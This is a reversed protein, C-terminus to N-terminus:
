VTQPMPYLEAVKLPQRRIKLRYIMRLFEIAERWRRVRMSLSRWSLNRWLPFVDIEYLDLLYFLLSVDALTQNQGMVIKLRKSATWVSFMKKQTCDNLVLPHIQVVFSAGEANQVVKLEHRVFDVLWYVPTLSVSGPSEFSEASEPESQQIQFVVRLGERQLWKVLFGPIARFVAQFYGCFAEYDPQTAAELAYQRKLTDAYRTQLSAVYAAGEQAYDFERIQFGDRDSWSSGPPMIQCRTPLNLAEARTNCYARVQAPSVANANFRFTDRHLFCHNSAFPIAYRAGIHLAFNGFEEVYDQHTRFDAYRQEYGEVCYPLASASSHSRFVFDIKPFRRTIEQLPAGFLKCDNANFLTTQGDTLVIASDVTFGFQYSAMEFGPALTLGTGHPIEQVNKFGLYNLDEVMRSTQTLPVLIKTQPDFRQLSPGHFHDWHLHTLYIYDPKVQDLMARDVEPFNWWSRWYCSGILWPDILISTENHEVYLGAHSLVTFRM